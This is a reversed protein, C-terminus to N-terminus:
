PLGGKQQTLAKAFKLMNEPHNANLITGLPENHSDVCGNPCAPWGGDEYEEHAIIPADGEWGCKDCYWKGMKYVEKELVERAAEL